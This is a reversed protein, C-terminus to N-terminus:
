KTKLDSISIGYSCLPSLDYEIQFKLENPKDGVAEKIKTFRKSIYIWARARDEIAKSPMLSCKEDLGVFGLNHEYTANLKSESICDPDPMGDGLSKSKFIEAQIKSPILFTYFHILISLDNSANISDLDFEVARGNSTLKVNEISNDTYGLPVSSAAKAELMKSLVPRIKTKIENYNKSSIDLALGSVSNDFTATINVIAARVQKKSQCYRNFVGEYEINENEEFTRRADYLNLKSAMSYASEQKKNKHLPQSVGKKYLMKVAGVSKSELGCTLLSSGDSGLGSYLIKEKEGQDIKFKEPIDLAPRSTFFYEYTQRPLGQESQDNTKLDKCFYNVIEAQLSKDSGTSNTTACSVLLLLSIISFLKSSGM